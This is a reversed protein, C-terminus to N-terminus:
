LMARATVFTTRPCFSKATMQDRINKTAALRASTNPSRNHGVMNPAEVEDLALGVVASTQPQHRQDVLEAPLAHCDANRPPDVRNTDDLCQGIRHQELSCRM